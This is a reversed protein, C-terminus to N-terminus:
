SRSAVALDQDMAQVYALEQTRWASATMGTFSKWERALHAQDAYGAAAAVDALRRDPHRVLAHAREFRRLRLVQSPTLGVEARFEHQLHRVSWGVQRALGAVSVADRASAIVRWAEAVEPRPLATEDWRAAFTSALVAFMEPASHTSQLRERLEVAVPGVVDGLEHSREVIAAAPIGFLARAASPRLDLQIGRWRGEHHITTPRTALGALCSALRTTGDEDPQTITLPEDLAVVLTLSRSPMGVHRGPPGGSMGYAVARTAYRGLPGAPRHETHWHRGDM